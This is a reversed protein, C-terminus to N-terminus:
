GTKKVSAKGPIDIDIVDLFLDADPYKYHWEFGVRGGDAPLVVWASCAYADTDATLATKMYGQVPYLRGNLLVTDGVCGITQIVLLRNGARPKGSDISMFISYTSGSEWEPPPGYDPDKELEPYMDLFMQQDKGMFYRSFVTCDLDSKLLEYNRGKLPGPCYTWSDPDIRSEYFIYSTGKERTLPINDIKEFLEGQRGEELFFLIDHTMKEERSPTREVFYHYAFADLQILGPKRYEGAFTHFRRHYDKPTTEEFEFLDYAQRSLAITPVRRRIDHSGATKTIMSRLPPIAEMNRRISALSCFCLFLLALSVAAPRPIRKQSLLARLALGATGIAGTLYVLFFRESDSKVLLGALGWFQIGAWVVWLRRDPSYKRAMICIGFVLTILSTAGFVIGLTSFYDSALRTLAPFFSSGPHAPQSGMAGLVSLLIPFGATFEDEIYLYYTSLILWIGILVFVLKPRPKLIFYIFLAAPILLFGSAHSNLACSLMFFSFLFYAAAHKGGEFGKLLAHVWLVISFPLFMLPRVNGTILIYGNCAAALAAAALATNVNTRKSFAIFFLYVTAVNLFFSLAMMDVFSSRIRLFLSFLYFVLPGQVISFGGAHNGTHMLRGTVSQGLAQLYYYTNEYFSNYSFLTGTRIILGIIIISACTIKLWADYNGSPAAEASEPVVRIGPIGNQNVYEAL